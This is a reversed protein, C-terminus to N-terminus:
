PRGTPSAPDGALLSLGPDALTRPEGLPFFLGRAAVTEFLDRTCDAPLGSLGADRLPFRRAARQFSGSPSAVANRSLHRFGVGRPVNSPLSARRIRLVSLSGSLDLLGPSGPGRGSRIWGTACLPAAEM